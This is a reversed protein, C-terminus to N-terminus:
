GLQCRSESGRLLGRRRGSDSRGGPCIWRGLLQRDRQRASRGYQDGYERRQRQVSRYGNGSIINGTAEFGGTAAVYSNLETQADTLLIGVSQRQDPTYFNGTIRSGKVTGRAGPGYKIGTQPILSDAGSGTIVSNKVYGVSKIGSRTLNNANGDTGRAGDFFVGGSQYGTIVSGAITVENEVTGTGAGQNSGVKVVGWGHPRAALGPADTARVMPGIVSESIRGASNLFGVGAEAYTTGSTITVGSIDVFLENTDTSGLSARSVTIVNGGGDRLYPATGALTTLSPDPKITVKDAGAGKIKLPKTITLGNRSGTGVPNSTNNVPTSQEAYTGACVVITDWPSAFNIATQVSTFNAQPVSPVTTM